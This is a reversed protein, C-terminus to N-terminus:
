QNQLHVSLLTLFLAIVMCPLILYIFTKGISILWMKGTGLKKASANESVFTALTYMGWVFLGVQTVIAVVSETIVAIDNRHILKYLGLLGAYYLVLLWFLNRRIYNV